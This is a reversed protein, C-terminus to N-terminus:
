GKIAGSMMGRRIYKNFLFYFLVVPASVIISGASLFGIDFAQYALGASIAVPATVAERRTLVLGFLFDNWTMIFVIIGTSAIGHGSLPLIISYFGKFVGAGDIRASEDMEKPVEDFFTWMSWVVLGISLALYIIILGIRTDILGLSNYILFYPIVFAMPPVMRSTLVTLMVANKMRLKVRSLVYAAPVGIGLALITSFTSIIMSNMLNVSFESQLFLKQYHKLTPIFKLQSTFSFADVQSKLSLLFLWFFPYLMMIIIIILLLHNLVWPATIRKHTAKMM